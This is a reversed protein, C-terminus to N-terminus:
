QGGSGQDDKEEKHTVRDEFNLVTDNSQFLPKTHFTEKRVIQLQADGFEGAALKHGEAKGAIGFKGGQGAFDEGFFDDGAFDDFLHDLGPAWIV